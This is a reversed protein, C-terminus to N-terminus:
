GHTLISLCLVYTMIPGHRMVQRQLSVVAQAFRSSMVKQRQAWATKSHRHIIGAKAYTSDHLSNGVGLVENMGVESIGFFVLDFTQTLQTNAYQLLTCIYYM